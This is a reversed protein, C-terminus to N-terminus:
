GAEHTKILVTTLKDVIPILRALADLDRKELLWRLHEVLADNIESIKSLTNDDM